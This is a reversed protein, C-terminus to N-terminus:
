QKKNKKKRTLNITYTKNDRAVYAVSYYIVMVMVYSVAESIGNSSSMNDFIGMEDFGITLVHINFMLLVLSIVGVIITKITGKKM